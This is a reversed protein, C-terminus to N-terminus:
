WSLFHIACSYYIEVVVVPCSVNENTPHDFIILDTNMGPDLEETIMSNMNIDHDTVMVEHSVSCLSAEMELFFM